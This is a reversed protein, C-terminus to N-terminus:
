GQAFWNVFLQQTIKRYIPISRHFSHLDSVCHFCYYQEKIALRQMDNLSLLVNNTSIDRRLHITLVFEFFRSSSHYAHMIGKGHIYDVARLLQEAISLTVEDRHLSKLYFADNILDHLSGFPAIELAVFFEHQTTFSLLPQIVFPTGRLGELIAVEREIETGYSDYQKNLRLSERLVFNEQDNGDGHADLVPFCVSLFCRHRIRRAIIYWCGQWPFRLSSCQSCAEKRAKRCYSTDNVLSIQTLKKFDQSV